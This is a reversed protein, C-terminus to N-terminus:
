KKLVYEPESRYGYCLTILWFIFGVVVPYIVTFTVEGHLLGTSILPILGTMAVLDALVSRKSVYKMVSKKYLKEDNIRIHIESFEFNENSEQMQDILFDFDELLHDMRNSSCYGTIQSTNGAGKVFIFYSQRPATGCKISIETNRVQDETAGGFIKMLAERKRISYPDLHKEMRDISGTECWKIQVNILLRNM